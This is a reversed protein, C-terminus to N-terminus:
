ASRPLVDFYAFIQMGNMFHRLAHDIGTFRAIDRREMLDIPEGHEDCMTQLAGTSVSTLVKVTGAADLPLIKVIM